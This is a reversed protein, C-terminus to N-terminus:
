LLEKKRSERQKEFCFRILSQRDNKALSQYKLSASQISNERSQIRIVKAKTQIYHYEGTLMPLVLWIDLEADDSLKKKKPIIISLGGGSVDNTVTSFPELSDHIPHIAVDIAADVRVYERRQIREIRGKEPLVIALVQVNLKVKAVIETHFAYPTQDKGIYTAKFRTGKPFFTTKKTKIEFPYDIFLYHENKEVVRSRYNKTENTRPDETELYIMTGIQM